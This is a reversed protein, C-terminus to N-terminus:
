GQAIVPRGDATVLGTPRMNPGAQFHGYCVPVNVPPQGQAREVPMWTMAQQIAPLEAEPPPEEAAAQANLMAVQLAHGAQKHAMVCFFCGPQVQAQAIAQLAPQLVQALHLAATKGIVEALSAEAVDPSPPVAAARDARRRAARDLGPPVGNAHNSV